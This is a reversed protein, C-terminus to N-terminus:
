NSPPTWRRCHRRRNDVGAMTEPDIASVKRGTKGRVKYYHKRVDVRSTCTVRGWLGGSGGGEAIGGGETGSGSRRRRREM